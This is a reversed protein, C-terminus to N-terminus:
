QSSETFVYHVFNWVFGLFIGASESHIERRVDVTKFLRTRRRDSFRRSVKVRGRGQFEKKNILTYFGRLHKSFFCFLVFFGNVTLEPQLYCRTPPPPSGDLWFAAPLCFPCNKQLAFQQLPLRPPPRSVMLHLTTRSSCRRGGPLLLLQLLLKKAQLWRRCAHRSAATHMPFCCRLCQPATNLRCYDLQAATRRELLVFVNLTKACSGNAKIKRKLKGEM